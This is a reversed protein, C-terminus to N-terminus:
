KSTPQASSGSCKSTGRGVRTVDISGTNGAQKVDGAVQVSEGVHSSLVSADAGAPINLKYTKGSADTITFNPNTGGLCGETVPANVAQGPIGAQAGTSPTTQDATGPVAPQQQGATPIQSS